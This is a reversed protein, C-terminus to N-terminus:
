QIESLRLVRIPINTILLITIAIVTFENLAKVQFYYCSLISTILYVIIKNIVKLNKLFYEM